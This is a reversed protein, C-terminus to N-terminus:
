KSGKRSYVLEMVKWESGDPLSDYMDYSFQDKGHDKGISRTPRGGPTMVDVMTGTTELTGTDDRQGWAISPVTGMSDMWISFNQNQLNSYGQVLFGEYPMGMFDSKYETLLYRGGLILHSKAEATGPMAETGPVMWMKTEVDWEGAYDEMKKHEDGPAASATWDKMFEPNAMPNEGYDVWKVGDGSVQDQVLAGGFFAVVVFGLEVKM